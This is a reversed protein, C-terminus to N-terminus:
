NVANNVSSGTKSFASSIDSALGNLAVILALAVLATLLTYEVMGAGKQKKSFIRLM